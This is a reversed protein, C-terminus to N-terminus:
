GPYAKLDRFNDKSLWIRLIRADDGDLARPTRGTFHRIERIMHPQDYFQSEIHTHVEPPTSPDVLLTAARLARYKRMLAKPTSGFYRTILRSATSRSMPLQAYLTDVDPGFESSLWASVTKILRIHAPAIPRVHLLLLKTIEEIVVAIPMAGSKRGERIRVALMDMDPGFLEGAPTARDAFHNAPRGTLAVFGLPTFAAGVNDLPGSVTYESHATGPGYVTAPHIEGIHGDVFKMVGQGSLLFTLQGLAAPQTERIHQQDCRFHYFQTIFPAIAAPPAFHAVSINDPSVLSHQGDLANDAAVWGGAESM